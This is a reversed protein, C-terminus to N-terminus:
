KSKRAAEANFLEELARLDAAKLADGRGAGRLWKKLGKPELVPVTPQNIELQARPDTFMIVPQVTGAFDPLKSKIWNTLRNAHDIAESSPNGLGESAFAMLIRSISLKSKWQSGNVTIQGTQDRVIFAHIGQPSLLVYPLPLTWAYYHYRDDFGKLATEIVQDPRPSRGWRRLSYNGYQALIFGLVIAILSIWLLDQRFSAAFGAILVALGGLSAYTGLRSRQRILKENTTIQM